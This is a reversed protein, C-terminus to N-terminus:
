GAVMPEGPAPAHGCRLMPSMLSPLWAIASGFLSVDLAQGRGTHQRAIVAALIAVAALSAAGLDAVQVAPPVPQGQRDVNYGLVGALSLYNLDHGARDRYPGSQGYGSLTAYILQPNREALVEYGLGLRAMVGPRFSEVLVDAKEVLELLQARGSDSKLDLSISRKNRNILLFLSGTDGHLPPYHRAPDGGKPEEVKIVDAGLDGLLM